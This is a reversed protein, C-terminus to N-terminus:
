EAPKNRKDDIEKQLNREALSSGMPQYWMFLERSLTEADIEFTEAQASQIVKVPQNDFSASNFVVLAAAGAANQGAFDNTVIAPVLTNYSSRVLVITGIPPAIPTAAPKPPDPAPPPTPKSEAM